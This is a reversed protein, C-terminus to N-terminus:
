GVDDDNTAILWCCKGDKADESVTNLGVFLSFGPGFGM